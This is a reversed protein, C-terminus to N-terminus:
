MPGDHLLIRPMSEGVLAAMHINSGKEIPRKDGALKTSRGWIWVELRIAHSDIGSCYGTGFVQYSAQIHGCGYSQLRVGIVLISDPIETQPIM